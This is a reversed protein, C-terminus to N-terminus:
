VFNYSAEMAQKVQGLIQDEGLVLSDLGAAVKFIHRVAKLGQYNFFYKRNEEINLGKIECLLEEILEMHFGEETFIYIETRNCTSIIVCELVNELAIFSRLASDLQKGTLSFRERVELSTIKHNVGSVYIKM